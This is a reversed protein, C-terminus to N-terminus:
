LEPIYWKYFGTLSKEARRPKFKGNEADVIGTAWLVIAFATVSANAIM